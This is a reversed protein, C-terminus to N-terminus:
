LADHFADQAAESEGGVFFFLTNSNTELVYNKLMEGQEPAYGSFIEYNESVYSEISEEIEEASSEDRLKIIMLEGVNMVDDSSYYVVSEFEDASLSFTRKFDSNDQLELGETFSSSMDSYIEDATKQSGTDSNIYFVIFLLTCVICLLEITKYNMAIAM